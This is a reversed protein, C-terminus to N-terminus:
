QMDFIVRKNGHAGKERIIFDTVFDCALEQIIVITDVWANKQFYSPVRTDWTDREAANSHKGWLFRIGRGVLATYDEQEECKTTVLTSLIYVTFQQKALYGSSKASTIWVDVDDSTVFTNDRTVSFLNYLCRPIYFLFQFTM